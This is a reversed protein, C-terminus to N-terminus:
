ALCYKAHQWKWSPLLSSVSFYVTTSANSKLPGMEKGVLSVLVWHEHDQKPDFSYLKPMSSGTQFLTDLISLYRSISDTLCASLYIKKYDLSFKCNKPSSWLFRWFIFTDTSMISLSLTQLVWSLHSFCGALESCSLRPTSYRFLDRLPQNSLMQYCQCPILRLVSPYLLYNQKERFSEITTSRRDKQKWCDMIIQWTASAVLTHWSGSSTGFCIAKQRQGSKWKGTRTQLEFELTQM